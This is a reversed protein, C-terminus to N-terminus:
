FTYTLTDYYYFNAGFLTVGLFTVGRMLLLVVLPDCKSRLVKKLSIEIIRIYNHLNDVPDLPDCKKCKKNDLKKFCVLLNTLRNNTFRM